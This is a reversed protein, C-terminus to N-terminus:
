NVINYDGKVIFWASDSTVIVGRGDGRPCILMNNATVNMDHAMNQGTTINVIGEAATIYTKATGSRLIIETGEAGYLIQGNAVNVPKYTASTDEETEIIPETTTQNNGSLVDGYLLEIQAIVDEMIEEKDIETTSTNSDTNSTINTLANKIQTDVYSKSVLPDNESGPTDAFIKIATPTLLAAFVCAFVINTFKRKM